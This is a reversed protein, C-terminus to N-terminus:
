QLDFDLKSIHHCASIFRRLLNGNGAIAARAPGFSSAAERHKYQLFALGPFSEVEDLHNDVDVGAVDVRCHDVGSALVTASAIL